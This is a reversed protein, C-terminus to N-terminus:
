LSVLVELNRNMGWSTLDRSIALQLLLKKAYLPISLHFDNLYDLRYLNLM